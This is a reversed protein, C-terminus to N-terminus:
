KLINLAMNITEKGNTVDQIKGVVRMGFAVCLLLGAATDADLHAAVSGDEQGQRILSTLFNRNRLVAERVLQSLEEDLTQLEVTSGVVLCGRRGEIESASELYFQLLEAIRALGTPFQQLRARLDTNRLLIYREFVRLFLSRKDQFAKYISGATLNMAEGLDNISAAHFGKQRFVIMANDLADDINFNRPRGRERPPAAPSTNRTM